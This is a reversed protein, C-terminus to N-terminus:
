HPVRDGHTRGEDPRTDSDPVQTTVLRLIDCSPFCYTTVKSFVSVGLGCMQYQGSVAGASVQCVDEQDLVVPRPQGAARVQYTPIVSVAGTPGRQYRGRM